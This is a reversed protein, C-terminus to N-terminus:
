RYLAKVKGWTSPEVPVPPCNATPNVTLRGGTGSFYVFNCDVTVPVDEGFMNQPHEVVDLYSCDESTGFVAYTVELVLAPLSVCYSYGIQIGTPSAGIVPFPSTESLWVGTFGVSPVIRFESYTRGQDALVPNEHVVFLTLTAPATDFAEKSTFAPDSYINFQDSSPIIQATVPGPLLASCAAIVVAHPSGRYCHTRM